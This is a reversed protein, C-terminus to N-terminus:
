PSEIEPEVVVSNEADSGGMAMLRTQVANGSKIAILNTGDLPVSFELPTEEGPAMSGYAACLRRLLQASITFKAVRDPKGAFIANTDPWRGDDTQLVFRYGANEAYWKTGDNVLKLGLYRSASFFKAVQRLDNRYLLVPSLRSFSESFEVNHRVAIRGNTAEVRGNPFDLMVFGLAFRMSDEDSFRWMRLLADPYDMEIRRDPAISPKGVAENNLREM